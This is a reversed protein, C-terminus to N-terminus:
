CDIKEYEKVIEIISDAIMDLSNPNDSEVYLRICNETGSPRVFARTNTYSLLVKDIGDQICIPEIVKSEDTSTKIFNKDKVNIKYQKNPYNEYLNVWQNMTILNDNLIHIVALLNTIGDGVCQNILEKFRIIKRVVDYEETCSEIMTDFNKSFLVTGHGNSEFYIGIDFQKAQKHLHKVGTPTVITDMKLVNKIYESSANNAYGTQVFGIKVDKSIIRAYKNIYMAFLVGIKDGDILHKENNADIYIFVLRDADGDLSAVLREDKFYVTKPLKNFKHVYEAGCMNNINNFDSTNVCSIKTKFVKNLEMMTQGGAGNACDVILEIANESVLDNYKRSVIDMYSKTQFDNIQRVTMHAEPTTMINKDIIDCNILKAGSIIKNKIDIGSARTDRAILISPIGGCRSKIMDILKNFDSANLNVMNEIFQELKDEPMDGNPMVFKLGNDPYPNHSATIIIGVTKYHFMYSVFSMIVGIRYAINLIEESNYRFGATGYRYKITDLPFLKLYHILMKNVFEPLM